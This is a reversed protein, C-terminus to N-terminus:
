TDYTLTLNLVVGDALILNDAMNTSMLHGGSAFDDEM